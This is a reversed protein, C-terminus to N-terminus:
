ATEEQDGEAADIARLIEHSLEVLDRALDPASGPNTPKRKDRLAQWWQEGTHADSYEHVLQGARRAKEGAVTSRIVVPMMPAVGGLMQELDSQVERRLSTAATPVNFLAVGLLDLDPNVERAHVLQQVIKETGRLSSTDAKTPILLWRAAELAARQLLVEGPPTDIVILDYANGATIHEALPTALVNRTEAGRAARHGLLVPVERLAEGGVCLNLNDRGTPRPRLPAGNALTAALDTGQDDITSGALGLDDLVNGQPDLDILLTAFGAKAALGALNTSITTKGVGGKGNGVALVRTLLARDLDITNM